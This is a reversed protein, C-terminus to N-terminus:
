RTTFSVLSRLLFGRSGVLVRPAVRCFLRQFRSLTVRSSQYRGTFRCEVLVQVEKHMYVAKSQVIEARVFIPERESGLSIMAREFDPVDPWFFWLGHASIAHCRVRAARAPSIIGDVKPIVTQSCDYPYRRKTSDDDAAPAAGAATRFTRMEEPTLTGSAIPSVVSDAPPLHSAKPRASTTPFEAVNAPLGARETPKPEDVSQAQKAMRVSTLALREIACALERPVTQRHDALIQSLAAAEDKLKRSTEILEAPTIVPSCNDPGVQQAGAIVRPLCQRGFYYGAACGIGLLFVTSVVAL